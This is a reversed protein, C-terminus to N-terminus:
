PQIFIISMLEAKYELLIAKSKTNIHEKVLEKNILIFAKETKLTKINLSDLINQSSL